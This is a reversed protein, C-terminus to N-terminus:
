RPTAKRTLQRVAKPLRRWDSKVFRQKCADWEKPNSPCQENSCQWSGRHYRTVGDARDLGSQLNALHHSGCIRCEMLGSSENILKM